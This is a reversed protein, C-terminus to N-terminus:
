EKNQYWLDLVRQAIPSLPKPLNMLLFWDEEQIEIENRRIDEKKADAVFCHITDIKYEKTSLLKGIYKINSLEIKLEEKVERKISQEPSEGKKIGGGPFNWWSKGYGHKVLLIKENSRIICKVGYTKPRFIFWYFKVIPYALKIIIKIIKKM